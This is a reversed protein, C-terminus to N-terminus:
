PLGAAALRERAKEDDIEGYQFAAILGQRDIFISDPLGQLRYQDYVSASRDLLVEMSLGNDEFFARASEASEELNLALIQLGMSRKEDQIRQMIPLEKKCPGCWTAWFNIWVVQGRLASLQVTEGDLNRLVFDPAPQGITIGTGTGEVPGLGPEPTSAAPSGTPLIMITEIGSDDRTMASVGLWGGIIALLM